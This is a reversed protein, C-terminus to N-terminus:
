TRPRNPNYAVLYTLEDKLIQQSNLSQEERSLAQNLEHKTTQFVQLMIEPRIKASLTPYYSKQIWVKEADTVLKVQWKDEGKFGHENAANMLDYLYIKSHNRILQEEM